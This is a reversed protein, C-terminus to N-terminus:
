NSKWEYDQGDILTEVTYSSDLKIAEQVSYDCTNYLEDLDDAYELHQVGNEDILIWWYKRDM